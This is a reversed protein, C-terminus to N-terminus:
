CMQGAAKKDGFIGDMTLVFGEASIEDLSQGGPFGGQTKTIRGATEADETVLKALIRVPLKEQGLV